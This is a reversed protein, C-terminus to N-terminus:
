SIPVKEISIEFFRYKNKYVKENRYEMNISVKKCIDVAGIRSCRDPSYLEASSFEDNREFCTDLVETDRGHLYHCGRNRRRKGRGWRLRNPVALEGFEYVNRLDCGIRARTRRWRENVFHM